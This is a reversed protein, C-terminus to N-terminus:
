QLHIYCTVQMRLLQQIFMESTSWGSLSPAASDAGNNTATIDAQVRSEDFNHERITVTGVRTQNYYNNNAANNNDYQVEIEPVTMDVTFEKPALSDDYRVEENVNGAEDSFSIDFTYDGDAYYNVTVTHVTDDGNGTGEQISWDSIIPATGDTNEITMVVQDANFNRETIAITATREEKFFIQEGFSTDGNNNDYSVNIIPATRDIKVSIVNSTQNGSNDIVTVEVEVNNSNNLESDIVICGDQSWNHVLQAKSHEGDEQSYLVGEQTSEGM